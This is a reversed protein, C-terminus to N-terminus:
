PLRLPFYVQTIPENPHYLVQGAELSVPELYPALRRYERPPFAALLRNTPSGRPQKRVAM